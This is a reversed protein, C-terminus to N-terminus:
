NKSENSEKGKLFVICRGLIFWFLITNPSFHFFVVSSFMSAAALSLCITLMLALIKGDKQQVLKFNKFLTIFIYIVFAAICIFGIAGNSVLINFFENDLTTMDGFDNNVIYTNPMNERAYDTFGCFSTGILMNKPSNLYIELGSKWVDFRRNSIDNSMDYGRDIIDPDDEEEGDDPGGFDISSIFTVAANVPVKFWRVVSVTSIAIVLSLLCILLKAWIKKAEFKKLFVFLFFASVAIGLVVAGSRSDSLVMYLLHLFISIASLVKIHRKKVTIFGYVLVIISIASSVAGNNPNTFIGWLRGWVFGLNYTYGTDDAVKTIGVGFIYLVLSAIVAVTTYILFFTLAFKLDKKCSDVSKDKKTLFLILFYIVWYICFIFNKKFNYQYNVLTSIGISGLIGFILLIEPIKLYSKFNILKYVLILISFLFSIYMVPSIIIKGYTLSNSGLVAYLMFIAFFSLNIIRENKESLTIKKLM